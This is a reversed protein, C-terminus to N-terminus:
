NSLLNSDIVIPNSLTKHIPCREAIRYIRERQQETLDGIIEIHCKIYTTQQLDSKITESSLRVTASQMDWDKQDAYMRMTIVKCSGLASLLLTQPNMGRDAGGLETPEDAILVHKGYDVTTTYKDKEIRVKVEKDM